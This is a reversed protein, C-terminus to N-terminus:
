EERFLLMNDLLLGMSKQWARNLVAKTKDLTEKRSIMRQKDEDWSIFKLYRMDIPPLGEGGILENMKYPETVEIRFDEKDKFLRLDSSLRFFSLLYTLKDGYKEIFSRVDEIHRTRSGPVGFLLYANVNTGFDLFTQMSSNIDERTIGKQYLDLLDQSYFEVGISVEEILGPKWLIDNLISFDSTARAGFIRFSIDQAPGIREHLLCLFRYFKQPNLENDFFYFEKAGSAYYHEITEVITEVGAAERKIEASSLHHCFRCKRWSCRNDDFTVLVRRMKRLYKKKLLYHPIQPFDKGYYIGGPLKNEVLAKLFNEGHGECIHTVGPVYKMVDQKEVVLFLTGGMVINIHLIKFNSKLKKLIRISNDLDRAMMNSLLIYNNGSNEIEELSGLPDFAQTEFGKACFEELYSLM